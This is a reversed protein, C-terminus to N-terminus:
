NLPNISEIIKALILAFVYLGVGFVFHNLLSRLRAQNPKPTKSAAIGLGLSPQMIFFPLFVTILGFTLAPFLTPQRAWEAGMLLFLTVGFVTGILYHAIWGITCEGKISPTKAISQHSFQGRALYGIWRGVSCWNPPTVSFVAKQFVAFIDMLATAGVGVILGSLVLYMATIGRLLLNLSM